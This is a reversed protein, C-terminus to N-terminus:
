RPLGYTKRRRVVEHFDLRRHHMRHGAARGRPREDSMVVREIHIEEQADRGLKIELPQHDAPKLADELDIAVEAVFPDRDLVIGLERHELEVLSVRSVFIQHIQGFLEKLLDALFHQARLLESVLAGLDIERTRPLPDANFVRDDFVRVELVARLMRSRSASSAYPLVFFRGIFGFSM